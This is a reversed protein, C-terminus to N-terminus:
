NFDVTNIFFVDRGSWNPARVHQYGFALFRSGYWAQMGTRAASTSKEKVDPTLATRIPVHLDNPSPTTRDIVKYRIRNEDLYTLALRRGDPMPRVRVTEELSYSEVDKLVFTNDWLLNGRRDFGCIIAHTTRYGDFSRPVGMTRYPGMFGFGYNTNRYQPHYIEAVLVYGEPSPLLDHMLLRYHLRFERDAALRRAGRQRLRAERNPSMFDFFHKLNLFDYFRLSPRSGTPTPGQTLDTAFLGQSYRTDRLTYTGAMLRDTSDGTSIQATLLSRNSEAQVFESRLLKGQPSIQKVQLRSKVGNTQTVVMKIQNAASDALFTLQSDLPEYVAPLYQFEGSRLSLLLVTLHQEIQVTVFLNGELAKMGYIEHNLKTDYTTTRIEGTRSNLAAIWMKNSLYDDKFLAYVMPGEGCMRSFYYREPVPLPKVWSTHLEQNLKQFSYTNPGSFRPEREVLLVVTSDEPIALVQVDSSYAQLDLELRSTQGPADPPLTQAPSLLPLTGLLLLFLGLLPQKM